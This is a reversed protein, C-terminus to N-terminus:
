DVELSEISIYARSKDPFQVCRFRPQLRDPSNVVTPAQYDCPNHKVVVGHKGSNIGCGPKIEVQTGLPFLKSTAPNAKATPGRQANTYDEVLSRASVCNAAVHQTGRRNWSLYDRIYRVIESETKLPVSWAPGKDPILQFGGAKKVCRVVLGTKEKLVKLMNDVATGAVVESEIGHQALASQIQTLKHM